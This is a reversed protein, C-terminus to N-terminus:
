KKDGRQKVDGLPRRAGINQRSPLPMRMQGGNLRQEIAGRLWAERPVEGRAAEIRDHLEQDVRVVLTKRESASV